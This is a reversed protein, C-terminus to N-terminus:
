LALRQYQGGSLSTTKNRDADARANHVAMLIDHCDPGMMSKIRNCSNFSTKLGHPLKSVFETVGGLDAARQVRQEQESDMDQLATATDGIRINDEM